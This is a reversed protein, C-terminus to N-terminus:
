LSSVEFKFSTGAALFESLAQFLESGPRALASIYQALCLHQFPGLYTHCAMQVIVGYRVVRVFATAVNVM